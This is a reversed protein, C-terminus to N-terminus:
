SGRRDSERVLPATQRRERHGGRDRGARWGAFGLWLFAVAVLAHKIIAKISGVDMGTRAEPPAAARYQLWDFAFIVIFAFLLVAVLVNVVALIRQMVRHELLAAATMCLIMGLVPTLTVGSLQGLTGFRWEVQGVRLPWVSALLDALPLVITLFGAAYVPWAMIRLASVARDHDAM